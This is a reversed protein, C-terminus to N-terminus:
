LRTAEIHEQLAANWQQTIPLAQTQPMKLYWHIARIGQQASRWVGVCYGLEGLCKLYAAQGESLRGTKGRKGELYLGHFPGRPHPFSIDPVDASAGMAKNLGRAAVSSQGGKNPNVAHLLLLEPYRLTLGGGVERPGKGIPGLFYEFIAKQSESETPELQQRALNITRQARSSVKRDIGQAIEL